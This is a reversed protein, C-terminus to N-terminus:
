CASSHVVVGWVKLVAKPVLKAEACSIPAGGGHYKWAGTATRSFIGNSGADQFTDAVKASDGRAPEFSAEAWYTHTAPDYAYFVSGPFTGGVEKVPVGHAPAFAAVLERKLAATVALKRAPSSAAAATSAALVFCALVLWSRRM